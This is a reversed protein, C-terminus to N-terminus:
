RVDGRGPGLAVMTGDVYFTYASLMTPEVWSTIYLLARKVTRPNGTSGGGGDSGGGGGVRQPQQQPRSQLAAGGAYTSTNLVHRFLAYHQSQATDAAWIYKATSDFGDWLATVFTTASSPLSSPARQVFSRSCHLLHLGWTLLVAGDLLFVLFFLIIQMLAIIAM